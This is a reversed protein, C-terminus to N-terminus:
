IGYEFDEDDEGEESDEDEDDEDEEYEEDTEEDEEEHDGDDEDNESDEDEDDEDEEGYEEETEEDEEENDEDNRDGEEKNEQKDCAPEYSYFVPLDITLGENLFVPSDSSKSDAVNIGANEGVKDNRADFEDDNSINEKTAEVALPVPIYYRQSGLDNLLDVKRIWDRGLLLTPLGTVVRANIMVSHGAVRITFRCYKDTRIIRGAMMIELPQDSYLIFSLNAAMSQPLLNLPSRGDVKVREPGHDAIWATTYFSHIKQSEVRQDEQEIAMPEIPCSAQAKGPPHPQGVDLGENRKDMEDMKIVLSNLEELRKELASVTTESSQNVEETGFSSPSAEAMISRIEDAPNLLDCDQCERDIFDRWIVYRPLKNPTSSTNETSTDEFTQRHKYARNYPVGDQPALQPCNSARPSECPVPSSAARKTGVRATTDFSQM